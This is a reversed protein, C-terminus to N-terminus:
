EPICITFSKKKGSTKLTQYKEGWRVLFSVIGSLPRALPSFFTVYLLDTFHFVSNYELLVLRHYGSLFSAVASIDFSMFQWIGTVLDSWIEEWASQAAICTFLPCCLIYIDEVCLSLGRTPPKRRRICVLAAVPSLLCVHFSLGGLILQASVDVASWAAVFLASLMLRIDEPIDVRSSIWGVLWGVLGFGGPAGATFLSLGM